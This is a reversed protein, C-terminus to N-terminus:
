EYIAKEWNKAQKLQDPTLNETLRLDTGSLNALFLTANTLEALTLEADTLDAFDLDADTLDAGVLVAKTLDAYRLNAQKFKGGTFEASSLNAGSLNAGNFNADMMFISRSLNAGSLNADSLNIDTLSTRTLNAGSLNAGSLNADSLDASSLNAGSLNAGSLNAGSLNAGSLNIKKLNIKPLNISGETLKQNANLYELAAILPPYHAELKDRNAKRIEEWSNIEESPTQEVRITEPEVNNDKSDKKPKTIRDCIEVIAIFGGGFISINEIKDVITNIVGEFLGKSKDGIVIHTVGIILVIGITLISYKIINRKM